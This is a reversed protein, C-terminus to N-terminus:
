THVTLLSTRADSGSAGADEGGWISSPQHSPFFFPCSPAKGDLKTSNSSLPGGLSVQVRHGRSLRHGSEATELSGSLPKFRHDVCGSGTVGKVEGM